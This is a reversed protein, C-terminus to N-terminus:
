GRARHRRLNARLALLGIVSVVVLGVVYFTSSLSAVEADTGPRLLGYELAPVANGTAVFALLAAIGGMFDWLGHLVSMGIFALM